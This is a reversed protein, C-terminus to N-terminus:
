VLGQKHPRLDIIVISLCYGESGEMHWPGHYLFSWSVPAFTTAESRSVRPIPDASVSFSLFHIARLYCSFMDMGLQGCSYGAAGPIGGVCGHPAQSERNLFNWSSGLSSRRHCSIAQSPVCKGPVSLM